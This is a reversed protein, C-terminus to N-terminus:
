EIRGPPPLELPPFAPENSPSNRWDPDIWMWRVPHRNMGNPYVGKLYPKAMSAKTYFYIPIRPMGELAVMEAQRYLKISEVLDGTAAAKDVLADLEPSKWRTWNNPSESEFTELYTHPHNYDASWGLRALQFHGDRMNKLMVKWEENRMTASIGLHERWMAQMAVAIAPHGSTAGVAGNYLLELSPFGQAHWRGDRQEVKYGAEGLLKRAREPDFQWEPRAFPDSGSARDAAVREDYGSGTFDPVFHSAPQQQGRTVKDIIQRKDLALNLAKRVRVDDVPPKTVNFEYWYATQWPAESFDRYGRLMPIYKEPLSTQSGIYDLEGGKYLALAADYSAVEFWVVRDVKLEDKAWYHPNKEFLMQYRFKHETLTFPGNNVINEPRTWRDTDGARTAREIVDRRVPFFAHYAVLELFYPTSLELEVELLHDGRARVGLVSEDLQLPKAPVFGSQQPKRERATPRFTPLDDHVIVLAHDAEKDAVIACGPLFGKNGDVEVEVFHDDEGNCSTKPGVGVIRVPKPGSLAPQPSGAVVLKAPNKAKAAVYSIGGKDTAAFPAFQATAPAKAIVLVATGAPLPDGSMAQPGALRLEERAVLLKRRGFLKGNKLTELMAVLRSGTEPRLVRQWAYVFDAAVVPKGDSWRADERLHFRFIRNDDSKDYRTAVGQIAHLDKPHQSVLGEFLDLALCGGVQESILGPDLFEPEDGANIYLTRPSHGHRSLTGYYHPDSNKRCGLFVLSAAASAALLTRKRDTGRM